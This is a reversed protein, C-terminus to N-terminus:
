CKGPDIAEIEKMADEWVQDVKREGEALEGRQLVNQM